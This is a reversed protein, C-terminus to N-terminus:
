RLAPRTAGEASASTLTGAPGVMPISRDAGRRLADIRQREMQFAELSAGALVTAETTRLNSPNIHRDNVLVEYHLHPGTSRGTSGVYGIIQGQTVRSGVGISPHIRSMHAYATDYGRAHGIRIYNGYSSFWGAREITGDGAAYIPTGSPAAYDIGRHQASFGLVPHQRMGFGSSLRAGNIPTRMLFKRATKGSEDYWDTKGTAPDTFRYFAKRGADNEVAMFYMDGTSVTRGNSDFTREFVMEFKDGASLDREFDIDFALVENLTDLEKETAGLAEATARFSGQLATRVVATENQVASNSARATFGSVGTDGDARVLSITKEPSPRFTLGTLRATNGEGNIFVALEQGEGLATPDIVGDLAAVAREADARSAGAKVLAAVLTEGDALTREVSKAGVGVGVFAEHEAMREARSKLDLESMAEAFRRDQSDASAPGLAWATVGLVAAGLGAALLVPVASSSTNTKVNTM